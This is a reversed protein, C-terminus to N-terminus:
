IDFEAANSNSRLKVYLHFLVDTCLPYPVFHLRKHFLKNIGRFVLFKVYDICGLRIQSSLFSFKVSDVFIM